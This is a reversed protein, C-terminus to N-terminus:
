YRKFCLQRFHHRLCIQVSYEKCLIPLNKRHISYTLNEQETHPKRTGDQASATQTIEMKFASKSLALVHFARVVM